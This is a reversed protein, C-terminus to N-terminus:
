FKGIKGFENAAEVLTRIHETPTELWFDCGPAVMSVGDEITKRVAERIQEDSGQHIIRYPSINGILPYGSRFDAIIELAKKVPTREGITIANAGCEVMRRVILSASGCINLITPTEASRIIKQLCPKVFTEFQIPSINDNSAGMEHFSIIDAGAEIYINVIASYVELTCQLFENVKEPSRVLWKLFEISNVLYSSVSTFPPVIYANVPVVGEFERKLIRLAKTIVPIRGANSLDKPIELDSTKEAIFRKATPWRIQDEFFNIPAGLVEAEVTLDFPVVVSELGALKHLASGLKAMKNPDKHAEPWYAQFARMGDVTYTGVSNFAPLRDIENKKGKLITM